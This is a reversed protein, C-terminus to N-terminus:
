YDGGDSNLEDRALNAIGTGTKKPIVCYLYIRPRYQRRERDEQSKPGGNRGCWVKTQIHIREGAAWVPGPL